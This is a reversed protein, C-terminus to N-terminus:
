MTPPIGAFGILTFDIAGSSNCRAKSLFYFIQPRQERALHGKRMNTDSDARFSIGFAQDTDGVAWHQPAGRPMPRGPDIVGEELVRLRTSLPM